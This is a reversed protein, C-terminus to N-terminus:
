WSSAWRSVGMALVLASRQSCPRIPSPAPCLSPLLGLRRAYRQLRVPRDSRLFAPLPHCGTWRKPHLRHGPDGQCSTPLPQRMVEALRALVRRFPERHGHHIGAVHHAVEHVLVGRLDIAEGATLRDPMCRLAITPVGDVVRAVAAVTGRLGTDETLRLGDPVRLGACRAIAVVGALVDAPTM